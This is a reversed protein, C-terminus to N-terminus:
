RQSRQRRVAPPKVPPTGAAPSWDHLLSALVLDALNRYAEASDLGAGAQIGGRQIGGMVAAVAVGVFSAQVPRFSGAKVGSTM